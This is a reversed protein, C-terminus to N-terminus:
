AYTLRARFSADMSVAVEPCIDKGSAYRCMVLEALSTLCLASPVLVGRAFDGPFHHWFASFHLFFFPVFHQAINNKHKICKCAMELM